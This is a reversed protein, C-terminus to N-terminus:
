LYYIYNLTPSTITTYIAYYYLPFKKNLEKIIKM